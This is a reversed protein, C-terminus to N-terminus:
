VAAGGKAYMPTAHTERILAAEETIDIGVPCWTICRGCGVCGNTGFQEQWTGLKHRMWQRYRSWVSDRVPGGVTYSFQHTFCSEWQQRRSVNGTALDNSDVVTSCFCTPCVMTCNACSLCREATKQWQHHEVADNLLEPLGDTDLQRGMRDSAIQQKLEALEVQAPYPDHVPLREVIATGRDSGVTVLFGARMETLSLDFGSEATPGTGMSACFCTGGPRTCNVSILLAERRATRYYADSECRYTAQDAAVGFVRDQIQIAALDCPRIGLLAYQDPQDATDKVAFKEGEVCLTFLKRDPAFLFRKPSDPGVVYDFWLEDDDPTLRYSGPAQTDRVGRAIEDASKIEMMKVVNDYLKPAIVKYGDDHLVQILSQFEDKSLFHQSNISKASM